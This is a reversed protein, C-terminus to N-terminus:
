FYSFPKVLMYLNYLYIICLLNFGNLFKIANSPSFSFASMVGDMTRFWIADRMNTSEAHIADWDIYSPYPNGVLNFGRKAASTGTRTVTPAIDGNNLGGGTFTITRANTNEFKVFADEGQQRRCVPVDAAVGLQASVAGVQHDAIVLGPGNEASPPMVVIM